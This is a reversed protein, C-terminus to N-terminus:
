IKYRISRSKRWDTRDKPSVDAKLVAASSSRSLFGMLSIWISQSLPATAVSNLSATLWRLSFENFTNIFSLIIIIFPSLTFTHIFPLSSISLSAFFSLSLSLSLSHILCFSLPLTFSDQNCLINCCHIGFKVWFELYLSLSIDYLLFWSTNCCWM